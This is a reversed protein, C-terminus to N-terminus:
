QIDDMGRKSMRLGKKEEIKFLESSVSLYSDAQPVMQVRGPRSSLVRLRRFRTMSVARPFHTSSPVCTLPATLFPQLSTSIRSAKSCALHTPCECTKREEKRKKGLPAEQEPYPFTARSRSHLSTSSIQPDCHKNHCAPQTPPM